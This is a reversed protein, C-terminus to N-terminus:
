PAPLLSRQLGEFLFEILRPRLKHASNLSPLRPRVGYRNENSLFWEGQLKLKHSSPQPGCSLTESGQNTLSATLCRFLHFSNSALTLVVIDSLLHGYYVTSSIGESCKSFVVNSGRVLYYNWDVDVRNKVLGADRMDFGAMMVIYKGEGKEKGWADAKGKSSTGRWNSPKTWSM